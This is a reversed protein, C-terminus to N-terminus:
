NLSHQGLFLRSYGISFGFAIAVILLFIRTGTKALISSSSVEGERVAKNYDLWVILAVGLSTLAHGSPNGFQNSCAFAQIDDAVWFPRPAHFWIKTVTMIFFNAGLFSIYYM